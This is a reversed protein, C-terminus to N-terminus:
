QLEDLQKQVEEHTVTSMFTTRITLAHELHAKADDLKGLAKEVMASDYYAEIFAPEKAMLEGVYQYATEYDGLAKYLQVMNDLIVTDDKNYDYAELNFAKAKEMDGSLIYLYGLSGYITSNRFVPFIEELEELAEAQRGTKLLLTAHNTKAYYKIEPKQKFGLVSNLLAESREVRGERLLYYAYTVKQRADMGKKHGREFWRFCGNIDGKVYCRMAAAVCIGAYRKFYFYAAIAIVLIIGWVPNTVLTWITLAIVALYLIIQM